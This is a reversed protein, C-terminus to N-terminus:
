WVVKLKKRSANREYSVNVTKMTMILGDGAKDLWGM